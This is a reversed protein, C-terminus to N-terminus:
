HENINQFDKERIKYFGSVSEMNNDNFSLLMGEGNSKLLALDYINENPLMKLPSALFRSPGKKLIDYLSEGEKLGFKTRYINSM